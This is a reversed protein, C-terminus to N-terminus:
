KSLCLFGFCNQFAVVALVKMYAYSKNLHGFTGTITFLTGVRLSLLHVLITWINNEDCLWILNYSNGHNMYNTYSKLM